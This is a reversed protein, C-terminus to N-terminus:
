TRDAVSGMNNLFSSAACGHRDVELGAAICRRLASWCAEEARAHGACRVGHKRSRGGGPVSESDDVICLASSRRPSSKPLEGRM